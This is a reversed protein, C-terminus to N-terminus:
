GLVKNYKIANSMLNSFFIEFYEGNTNIELIENEILEIKLTKQELIIEYNKIIKKIFENVNIIKNEINESITSLSILAQILNNM